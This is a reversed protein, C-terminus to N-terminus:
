KVSRHPKKQALVMSNQDSCSQLIDQFRPNYYRWIQEKGLNRQSNPIKQPEPCIKLHNTRTRHFISKTNQYPSCLFRYGAKPLTSLKLLIQEELGHAPFINGNTNDEIKKM